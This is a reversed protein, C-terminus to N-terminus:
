NLYSWVMQRIKCTSIPKSHKGLQIACVRHTVPLIFYRSWDQPSLHTTLWQTCIIARSVVFDTSYEAISLKITCPSILFIISPRQFFLYHCDATGASNVFNSHGQRFVSKKKRKQNSFMLWPFNNLLMGQWLKTIRSM